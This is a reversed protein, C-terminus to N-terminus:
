NRLSAGTEQGDIRIGIRYVDPYSFSLAGLGEKDTLYSSYGNKKRRVKEGFLSYEIVDNEIRLALTQSNSAPLIERAARIDNVIRSLVANAIQQREAASVIRQWSKIQTGLAFYMAAFLMSLIAFSVILEVLTFGRKLRRM